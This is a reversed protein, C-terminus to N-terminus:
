AARVIGAIENFTRGDGELAAHKGTFNQWRTIIADVYIPSLEMLRSIRGCQESAILTTGGGGFSDLVVDTARTTTIGVYLMLAKINEIQNRPHTNSNREYDDTLELPIFEIKM